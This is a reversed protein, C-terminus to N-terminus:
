TKHKLWSILNWSLPGHERQLKLYLRATKNRIPHRQKLLSPLERAVDGLAGLIHLLYGRRVSRLLVASTRLPLYWFLIWWPYHVIYIYLNNKLFQTEREKSGVRQQSSAHHYVISKPYYLIKYGADLVRLSLEQGESGFFLKDWFLGVKDFVEKRIAAGGESFSWSLFEQDQSAKQKESYVWGSGGDIEMTHANVIKSNIVAISPEAQFRAVLNTLSDHGLCADSDLCLIICGRAVAIGANRGASIGINRDLLVLKVEPFAARVANPTGDISGNDVVVTEFYPYTQEYVSRIADLTDDKRNWTVILVSVLPTEMEIDLPLGEM